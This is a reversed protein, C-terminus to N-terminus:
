TNRNFFIVELKVSDFQNIEHLIKVSAKNKM